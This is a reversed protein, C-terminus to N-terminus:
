YNRGLEDHRTISNLHPTTINCCCNMLSTSEFQLWSSRSVQIYYRRIKPMKCPKRHKRGETFLIALSLAILAGVVMLMGLTKLSPSIM